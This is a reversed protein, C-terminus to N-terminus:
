ILSYVGLNGVQTEDPLDDVTLEHELHSTLLIDKETLWDQLCSSSHSQLGKSPRALGFRKLIIKRILIFLGSLGSSDPEKKKFPRM